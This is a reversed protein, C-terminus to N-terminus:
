LIRRGFASAVLDVALEATRNHRDLIPNVEVVDMSVLAGADHLLEMALHAERLTVGGRVPTGVGPAEVPDLLDLDLSVHFGGTDRSAIAIADQMVARMGREDIDRMTFAAIGLSRIRAQEAPDLDRLGVYAFHRPQVAPSGGALTALRRDGLGFLHAVPMGHVNGSPSTDPTNLDAHADLWVVGLAAGRERLARAVGAVSGAAVSHDGGLVLPVTDARVADATHEALDACVDAIVALTGDLDAPVAARDPSALNGRDEVTHGLRRLADDLHALRLASPGMDVGRRAAGLDLPVGLVRLTRVPALRDPRRLVPPARTEPSMSVLETGTMVLLLGSSHWTECCNRYM